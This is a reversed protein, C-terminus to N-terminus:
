AAAWASRAPSSCCTTRAERRVEGFSPWRASTPMTPSRSRAPVRSPARLGNSSRFTAGASTRPSRCSATPRDCSASSRSARASRSRRGPTGACPALSARSIAPSPRSPPLGRPRDTRVEALVEGGLGVMAAALSDVSIELALAVRSRANLRVVPSPRGPPRGIRVAEHESVIGAASLEGILSRIASRTLGTRAVLQSRSSPGRVHLDRVIAGLNARRVTRERQGLEAIAM